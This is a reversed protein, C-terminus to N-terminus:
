LRTRVGQERESDRSSREQKRIGVKELGQAPISQFGRGGEGGGWGRVKEALYKMEVKKRCKKKLQKKGLKEFYGYCSGGARQKKERRRLIDLYV